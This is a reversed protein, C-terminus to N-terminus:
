SLKSNIWDFVKYVLLLHEIVSHYDGNETAHTVDYLISLGHRNFPVVNYILHSNWANDKKLYNDLNLLKYNIVKFQAWIKFKKYAQFWPYDQILDQQVQRTYIDFVSSLKRLDDNLSKFSALFQKFDDFGGVMNTSWKDLQRKHNALYEDFKNFVTDCYDSTKFDIVEHESLSIIFLGIYKILTNHFEYDPDISKIWKYTYYNSNYLYEKTTGFKISVVPTNKHYQFITSDQKSISKGLDNDITNNDQVNWYKYLTAGDGDNNDDNDPIYKKSMPIDRTVERLLHNLLPNSMVTFDGGTILDDDLNIFAVVNRSYTKLFLDCGRFGNKSQDFSIFKLNRLPKWGLKLLKSYHRLIELLIVHNSLPNSSTFSDRSGGIIIDGDKIIGDISGIINTGQRQNKTFKASVKISFNPNEYEEITNLILRITKMDIPIVPVQPVKPSAFDYVLTDRIIAKTNTVNTYHLIAKVKYEQATLSKEIINKDDGIFSEMIVIKDEVTYGQDLLQKYDDDLGQHVFIFPAEIDVDKGYGYYGPTNDEAIDKEFVVGDKDLLQLKSELPASLNSAFTDVETKLGLEQFKGTIFSVLPKNDDGLLNVKTHRNIDTINNITWVIYQENTGAQFGNNGSYVLYNRKVDNQTLHLNHWRRYDRSLSTRPLFSLQFIIIAIIGLGCFWWFRRKSFKVITEKILALSIESQSRERRYRRSTEQRDTELQNSPFRSSLLPVTEGGQRFPSPLSTGPRSRPPTSM